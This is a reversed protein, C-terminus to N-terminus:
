EHGDRRWGHGRVKRQFAADAARTADTQEAIETRVLKVNPPFVLGLKVQGGGISLVVIAAEDGVAITEGTRRTLTLM